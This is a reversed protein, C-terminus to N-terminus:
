IEDYNVFFMVLFVSFLALIYELLSANKNMNIFGMLWTFCLVFSITRKLITYIYLKLEKKGTKISKNYCNNNIKNIYSILNYRYINSEIRRNDSQLQWPKALKLKFDEKRKKEEIEKKAYAEAQEAAIVALKRAKTMKSLRIQEKWDLM